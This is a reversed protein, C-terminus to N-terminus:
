TKDQLEPLEEIAEREEFHSLEWVTFFPLDTSELDGIKMNGREQKEFTSYRNMKWRCPM